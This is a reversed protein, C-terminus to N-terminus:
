LDAEVIREEKWKKLKLGLTRVGIGLDRASRQRHGENRRLTAVITEREIDALTLEGDCALWTTGNTGAEPGSKV